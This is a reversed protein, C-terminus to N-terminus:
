RDGAGGPWLPAQLGIELRAITSFDPWVKGALISALTNHGVGTLRSVARLSSAGVAAALNLAFRRALEAVPDDAPKEPWPAPALEFPRERERMGGMLVAYVSPTRSYPEVV